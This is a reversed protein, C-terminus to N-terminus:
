SCVLNLSQVRIHLATMDLKMQFELWRAAAVTSAFLDTKFLTIYLSNMPFNRILDQSLLDSVSTKKEM